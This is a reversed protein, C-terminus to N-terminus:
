KFSFPPGAVSFPAVWGMATECLTVGAIDAPLLVFQVASGALDTLAWSPAGVQESHPMSM